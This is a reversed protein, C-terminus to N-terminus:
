SDYLFRVEARTLEASIDLRKRIQTKQTKKSVLDPTIQLLGTAVSVTGPAAM